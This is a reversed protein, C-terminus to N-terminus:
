QQVGLWQEGDPDGVGGDELHPPRRGSRQDESSSCSSTPKLNIELPPPNLLSSVTSVPGGSNCEAALATCHMQSEALPLLASDRKIEGSRQTWTLHLDKVETDLGQLWCGGDGLPVSSVSGGAQGEVRRAGLQQSHAPCVRGDADPPQAGLQRLLLGSLTPLQLLYGILECVSIHCLRSM